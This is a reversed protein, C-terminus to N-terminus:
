FLFIFILIFSLRIFSFTGEPSIGAAAYDIDFYSSFPLLPDSGIGPSGRASPWWLHSHAVYPLVATRNTQKAIHLLHAVVTQMQTLQERYWIDLILLHPKTSEKKTYIRTEDLILTSAVGINFSLYVINVFTRKDRSLPSHCIKQNGPALLM